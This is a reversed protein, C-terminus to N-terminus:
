FNVLEQLNPSVRLDFPPTFYAPVGADDFSCLARVLHTNTASPPEVNDAYHRVEANSLTYPGTRFDATVTVPEPDGEEQSQYSYSDTAYAIDVEVYLVGGRVPVWVGGTGAVKLGDIFGENIWWGGSREYIAFSDRTRRRMGLGMGLVSPLSDRPNWTQLVPVFSWRSQGDELRKQRLDLMLSQASM